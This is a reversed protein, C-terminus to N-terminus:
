ACPKAVLALVARVERETLDTRSELERADAGAVDEIAEYGAERLKAACALAPPFPTGPQALKRQRWHGAMAMDGDRRAQHEKGLYYHRASM